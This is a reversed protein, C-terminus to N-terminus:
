ELPAEERKVTVELPEDISDIQARFMMGNPGESATGAELTVEDSNDELACSAVGLMMLLVLARAGVQRFSRRCIAVM